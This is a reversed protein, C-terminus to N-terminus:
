RFIEEPSSGVRVETIWVDLDRERRLQRAAAEAERRSPYGGVMGRYWLQGADDRHRQLATPYGAEALRELLRRVGADERAAAVVAYHGPPVDGAVAATDGAAADPRAPGEEGGAVAGPASPSDAPAAGTAGEERGPAQPPVVDEGEVPGSVVAPPAPNWHVAAWWLDSPASVPEAEGGEPDWVRLGEGTDLLVRGDPTGLPLDSRWVGELRRSTGGELPIWIPPGSGHALLFGGLTAPRIERLPEAVSAMVEAEATFRSVRVVRPPSAVAVYIEHSSPSAAVTSARGPLPIDDTPTLSPLAVIRLV